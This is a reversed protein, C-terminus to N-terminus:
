RSSGTAYPRPGPGITRAAPDLEEGVQVERRCTRALVGLADGDMRQAQWILAAVIDSRSLRNGERRTAVLLSELVDDVAPPLLFQKPRGPVEGNNWPGNM